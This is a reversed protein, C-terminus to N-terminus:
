GTLAVIQNYMEAPTRFDLTKRPREHLMRAVANLRAQSYGSVDVGKPLHHRPLGNPRESISIAYTIKGHSATKQTHHRFRRMGRTHRLHQLLERKLASRAQIYVSRYITEHSVHYRQDGPYTHKLWGAIQEPSWQMQLQDDRDSGLSSV